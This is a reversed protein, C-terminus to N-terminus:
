AKAVGWFLPLPAKTIGSVGRRWAQYAMFLGTPVWTMFAMSARNLEAVAAREEAPTAAAFWAERLREIGPDNPWGFWAGDGNTRLATYGAPSACDVGAHWTHFLNWGGEAPPAKVARRRAVAGWDTSVFDVVCGLERLIRHTVQGMAKLPGVDEAVLLTVPRGDYGSEALLQRARDLDRPGSLVEGGADSYLPTDPTFFSPVRRWLVDDDGVVARMYDAQDVVLAVARRARVDDFPPHLHNFRLSGINGLPDAIDLVIQRNRRLVPAHDPSVQEWWDVEGAQLATAIAEPDAQVLWEIRDFAIRKGGSIWDAPEARPEYGDFREFVARKGPDWEDRVFRMPGSGIAEEIQVFPDTRALREPMIFACPAGISGLAQLLRPYPAALRLRVTRDDPAAFEERLARIAQGMPDRVMWRELSAVVDSGRVPEGDHFKLGPRLRITWARRDESIEHGEAMQPKPELRSDIGYLTDWVLMAANRVVYQTGWIPDLNGLAAHPVFRLTRAATQARVAPAALATVALAAAALGATARRGIM